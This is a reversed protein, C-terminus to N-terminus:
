QIARPSAIVDSLSSTNVCSLPVSCIDSVTCFLLISCLAHETAGCSNSVAMGRTSRSLGLLSLLRRIQSCWRREERKYGLYTCRTRGMLRGNDRERAAGGDGAGPIHPRSLWLQPPSPSSCQPHNSQNHTYPRM